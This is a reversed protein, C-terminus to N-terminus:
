AAGNFNQSKQFMYTCWRPVMISRSHLRSDSSKIFSLFLASIHRFLHKGTKQFPQMRSALPNCRGCQLLSHFGGTHLALIRFAELVRFATSISLLPELTLMTGSAPSTINLILVSSKAQVCTRWKLLLENYYACLLASFKVLAAGIFYLVEIIVM